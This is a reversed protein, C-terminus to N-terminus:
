PKNAKQRKAKRLKHVVAGALAAFAAFCTLAAAAVYPFVARYGIKGEKPNAIIQFTAHTDGACNGIGKVMLTATGENVNESYSVEYDVGKVLTRGDLKVVPDPEIPYGTRVHDPIMDVTANALDAPLIVFSTEVTGTYDGAGTITAHVTGPNVLDGDFQVNFDVGERLSAETKKGDKISDIRLTVTPRKETGDYMVDQLGQVRATVIDTAELAELTKKAQDYTSLAPGLEGRISNAAAFIANRSTAAGNGEADDAFAAPAFMAAGLALACAAGALARAHQPMTVETSNQLYETRNIIAQGYPNMMTLQAPIM